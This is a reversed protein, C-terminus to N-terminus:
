RVYYKSAVSYESRLCAWWDSKYGVMHASTRIRWCEPNGRPNQHGALGACNEDAACDEMAKRGCNATKQYSWNHETPMRQVKFRWGKPYGPSGPLDSAMTCLSILDESDYDNWGYAQMEGEPKAEALPNPTGSLNIWACAVALGVCIGIAVRVVNKIQRTPKSSSNEELESTELADASCPGFCCTPKDSM